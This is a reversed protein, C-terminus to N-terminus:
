GRATTEVVWGNPTARAQLVTAGDHERRAPAFRMALGAGLILVGVVLAAAFAFMLALAAGVALLAFGAWRMLVSLTSNGFESALTM